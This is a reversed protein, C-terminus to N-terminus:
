LLLNKVHKVKLKCGMNQPRQLFITSHIFFSRGIENNETVNNVDMVANHDQQM